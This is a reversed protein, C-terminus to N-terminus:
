PAAPFPLIPETALWAPTADPPVWDTKRKEWLFRENRDALRFLVHNRQVSGLSANEASSLVAIGRQLLSDLDSTACGQRIRWDRSHVLRDIARGATRYTRDVLEDETLRANEYALRGSDLTALAEDVIRITLESQVTKAAAPSGTAQCIQSWENEWDSVRRVFQRADPTLTRFADAPTPKSSPNAKRHIGRPLQTDSRSQPATAPSTSPGATAADSAPRTPKQVPSAPKDLLRTRSQTVRSSRSGRAAAVVAVAVVLVAWGVWGPLGSRQGVPVTHTYFALHGDGDGLTGISRTVCEYRGGELEM